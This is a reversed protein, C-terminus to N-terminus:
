RRSRAMIYLFFPSGLFATIVGVPIQMASGPVIWGAVHRALFDCLVLLAAGLIAAAPLSRRPHSGFLMRAMHPVVLGVFGIVGAYAVTVGVLLSCLVFLWLRLRQVRIGLNTAVLDGATLAALHESLGFLVVMLAGSLAFVVLFLSWSAGTFVPDLRGLLINVISNLKDPNLYMLLSIAASFFMGVIIGALLLRTTQFGGFQALRWVLAMSLLAGIFGLLPMAWWLGLVVAVTAGLAAGSSTGLIYPDALPNGLMAQFVTGTGALVFGAMVALLLRPVLFQAVIYGSPAGIFLYLACAALALLILLALRLGKM